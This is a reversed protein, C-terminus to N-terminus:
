TRGACSCSARAPNPSARGDLDLGCTPSSTPVGASVPRSTAGDALAMFVGPAAETMGYAQQLTVGRDLWTRAVHELIPSGGYIVFRLSSLDAAEWDRHECMM